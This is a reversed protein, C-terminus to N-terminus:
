FIKIEIWGHLKQLLFNKLEFAYLWNFNCAYFYILFDVTSTSYFKYVLKAYRTFMTLFRTIMFIFRTLLYNVSM